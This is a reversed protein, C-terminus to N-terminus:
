KLDHANKILYKLSEWNQSFDIAVKVLVKQIDM